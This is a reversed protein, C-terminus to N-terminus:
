AAGITRVVVGAAQLGERIKAALQDAGPTDGHICLTEADIRLIAGDIAVVSGTTALRVARAAVDDADCIVAGPKQRSVLTGNPEYARDVFAEAAVRLGLERGATVVESNPLAFLILSRDFAAVARALACALARDTATMNYLAGHAKVHQLRLGEAAAVGAVAAVQYLVLDEAEHPTVHMERRGFGDRDPFGPHAGVAVGHAKALRITQRLVSPDGAHFGAAINASTISKMLGADHTLPGSGGAAAGASEGVDANLDIRM